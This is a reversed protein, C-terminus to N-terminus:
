ASAFWSSRSGHGLSGAPVGVQPRQPPQGGSSPTPACATAGLPLSEGCSTSFSARRRPKQTESSTSATALTLGCASPQATSERRYVGTKSTRRILPDIAPSRCIPRHPAQLRLLIHPTPAPIRTAQLATSHWRSRLLHLARQSRIETPNCRTQGIGGSSDWSDPLSGAM